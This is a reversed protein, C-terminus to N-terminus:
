RSADPAPSAVHQEPSAPLPERLSMRDFLQHGLVISAGLLVSISAAALGEMVWPTLWISRHAGAPPGTQPEFSAPEKVPPVLPTLMADLSDRRAPLGQLGRMEAAGPRAVATASQPNPQIRQPQQAPVATPAAAEATRAAPASNFLALLTRARVWRESHDKFLMADSDLDGRSALALLARWSYPGRKENQHAVFWRSTKESAGDLPSQCHSCALQAGSAAPPVIARHCHPCTLTAM